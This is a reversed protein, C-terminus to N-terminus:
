NVRQNRRLEEVDRRLAKTENLLEDTKIRCEEESAKLEALCEAKAEELDKHCADRLAQNDARLQALVAQQMELVKGATEVTMSGAEPRWKLLQYLGYGFGGSTLLTVIIQILPSDADPM